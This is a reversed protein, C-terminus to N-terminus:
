QASLAPKKPSTSRSPGPDPREGASVESQVVYLLLWKKGFFCASCGRTNKRYVFCLLLRRAANAERVRRLPPLVGGGFFFWVGCWRAAIQFGLKLCGCAGVM